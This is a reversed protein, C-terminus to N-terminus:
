DEKSAPAWSWEHANWTVPGVSMGTPRIGTLRRRHAVVEARQLLPLCPLDRAFGGQQERMLRARREDDLESLAHSLLLDNDRSRWGPYNRGQWDNDASPIQSSHWAGFGMAHLHMAWAYMAMHPFLRRPLVETFLERAPISEARCAIGADSWGRVLGAALRQRLEDGSTTLLRLPEGDPPLLRGSRDQWGAAVLLSRARGPDCALGALVPAHDPHGDPLWSTAVPLRGAAAERALRRRDVALALGVRARPDELAPSQCNFDLREVILGPKYVFNFGPMQEELQIFEDLSMQLGCVLDVEGARWAAMLEGPDKFFRYVLREVPRGALRGGPPAVRKLEISEGATWHDFRFPGMGVPSRGFPHRPLAAPDAAFADALLHRPLARHCINANPTIENWTVVLTRPDPCVMDAVKVDDSKTVVSKIAPDMWMRWTWEIDRSDLPAGDHWCFGPRLRYTLRMRGDGLVEWDGRALSPMREIWTPVPRWDDGYQVPRTYLAALILGSTYLPTFALFLNDPEQTLGIIVAGDHGGDRRVDDRIGM